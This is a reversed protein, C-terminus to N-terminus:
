SIKQLFLFLPILVYNSNRGLNIDRLQTSRWVSSLCMVSCGCLMCPQVFHLDVSVSGYVFGGADGMVTWRDASWGFLLHYYCATVVLVECLLSGVIRLYYYCATVLFVELQLARFPTGFFTVFLISSDM